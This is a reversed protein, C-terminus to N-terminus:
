LNAEMFKVQIQHLLHTLSWDHGCGPCPFYVWRKEPFGQVPIGGEHPGWSDILSGLRTKCWRCDIEAKTIIEQIEEMAPPPDASVTIGM